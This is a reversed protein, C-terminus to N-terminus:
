QVDRANNVTTEMIQGTRVNVVGAIRVTQAVRTSITWYHFYVMVVIQLSTSQKVCIVVKV